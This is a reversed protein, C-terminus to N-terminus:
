LIDPSGDGLRTKFISGGAYSSALSHKLSLDQTDYALM